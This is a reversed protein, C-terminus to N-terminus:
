NEADLLEAELLEILGIKRHFMFVVCREAFAPAPRPQTVKIFGKAKFQRISDQLNIVTYCTHYPGVGHKLLHSYVPSGPSRPYVLEITISGLKTLFVLEVDDAEDILVTSALYGLQTYAAASGELDDTVVAVHDLVVQDGLNPEFM